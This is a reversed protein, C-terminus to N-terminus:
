TRLSLHVCAVADESIHETCGRAVAEAATDHERCWEEDRAATARVEHRSPDAPGVNLM